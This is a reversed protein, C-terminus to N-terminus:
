YSKKLITKGVFFHERKTLIRRKFRKRNCNWKRSNWWINRTWWESYKGQYITIYRMKDLNIKNFKLSKGKYHDWKGDKLNNYVDDPLGYLGNHVDVTQWIFMALEVIGVILLLWWHKKQLQKKKCRM